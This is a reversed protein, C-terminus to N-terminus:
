LFAKCVDAVSVCGVVAEEGDITWKCPVVVPTGIRIAVQDGSVADFEDGHDVADIGGFGRLRFVDNTAERLTRSMKQGEVLRIASSAASTGCDFGFIGGLRINVVNDRIPAPFLSPPIPFDTM